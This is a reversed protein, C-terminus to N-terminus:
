IVGLKRRVGDILFVATGIVCTPCFCVLGSVGFIAGMALSTNGEPELYKKNLKELTERM